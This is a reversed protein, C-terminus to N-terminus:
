SSPGAAVVVRGNAAGSNEPIDVPARVEFFVDSSACPLRVFILDKQEEPSLATQGKCSAQSTCADVGWLTFRGISCYM